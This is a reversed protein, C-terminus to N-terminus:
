ILPSSFRKFGKNVVIKYALSVEYASAYGLNRSLSSINADYSFGLNWSSNSFGASFIFSDQLRYWAGFMVKTNKSKHLHPPDIYYSLYTGVNVQFSQNQYQVLYNPSIEYKRKWISAIGGHLKYLIISAGKTDEIFGTPRIINSVSLGAFASSSRFSMRGRTTYYWMLGANLVPSFVQMNLTGSEGALTNDFGVGPSYQTSWELADYNVRQQVAGAQLGVALINNGYRTLHFNYAGALMVSQNIFERNPGAVDNLFSAGIGGLHKVRIGPKVLPKIFSFQFTNFPMGLSSWQSRYNMGIYIDKELGALAPNLFLSSSYYQSFVPGQAYVRGQSCIVILIVPIYRLLRM